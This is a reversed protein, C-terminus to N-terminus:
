LSVEDPMKCVVFKRTWMQSEVVIREDNGTMKFVYGSGMQEEFEYGLTNFRKILETRFDRQNGQYIYWNNNNTNTLYIIANYQNSVKDYAEKKTIGHVPLDPLYLFAFLLIIVTKNKM